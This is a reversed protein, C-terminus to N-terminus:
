PVTDASAVICIKGPLYKLYPLLSVLSSGPVYAVAASADSFVIGGEHRLSRCKVLVDGDLNTFFKEAFAVSLRAGDKFFFLDGTHMSGFSEMSAENSCRCAIAQEERTLVGAQRLDAEDSATLIKVNGLLHTARLNNDVKYFNLTGRFGRRLLTNEFGRFSYMAIQKGLKHRRETVFCSLNVCFRAICGPIHLLYHIKPKAEDKYLRLYLEQHEVILRHLLQVKRVATPGMRLIYLIRGLLQFCRVEEILLNKPVLFMQCWLGIAVILCLVESAFGRFHRGRKDVIREKLNLNRLVQTRHAKPLVLHDKVFTEIALDINQDPSLRRIRRILQNLEYQGVGSSSCLTHMWDWYISEPLNAHLSMDSVIVNHPSWTFGALQMLKRFRTPGLGEAVQEGLHSFLQRLEPPSYPVIKECNSCTFHVLGSDPRLREVAVRGVVNQCCPCPKTAQAGKSMCVNYHEDADNLWCGFDIRLLFKDQLLIGTEFFNFGDTGQLMRLVMTALQSEGGPMKQLIRKPVYCLDLWSASLRLLWPPMDMLQWYVATYGRGPDPRHVNGPVVGDMYVVARGGPPAETGYVPSVWQKDPQVVAHHQLLEFYVASEQCLLWLLALPCVYKITITKLVSPKAQITTDMAKFLKGYPTKIQEFDYDERNARRARNFTTANKTKYRKPARVLLSQDTALPAEHAAYSPM